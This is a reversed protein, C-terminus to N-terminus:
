ARLEDIIERAIERARELQDAALSIAGVVPHGGGGHRECIEAINHRRPVPSWPNSGVSIKVRSPSRTLGITYRCEPFLMYAIFKNHADIGADLLDFFVVGDRANARDRIADINHKHRALIPALPRTVYDAAAIEGIARRQLDEIFRTALAKDKNNEVWTMLQLAPAELAVATRADAFQAGDIIDAWGILEEFRAADFGFREALVGAEFKTCSRAEPDYFKQGSADAEFHARDEPSGFASVHHDFWWDLRPSRAYRFDVCVNVDGDFADPPFADGPRHQVGVYRVEVGPDRKARYWSAFIAASAAGDFCNDHFLIKLKMQHGAVRAEPNVARALWSNPVGHAGIGTYWIGV